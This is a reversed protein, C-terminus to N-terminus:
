KPYAVVVFNPFADPLTGGLMVHSGPLSKQRCRLTATV